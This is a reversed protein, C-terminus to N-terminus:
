DNNLDALSFSLSAFAFSLRVKINVLLPRTEPVQHIPPLQSAKLAMNDPLDFLDSTFSFLAALADSSAFRTGASITLPLPAQLASAPASASASAAGQLQVVDPLPRLYDPKLVYGCFANRAFFGLYLDRLIGPTQWNLAVLQCGASWYEFPLLNSSDIRGGHPLVRVLQEASLNFLRTLPSAGLAQPSRATAPHAFLSANSTANANTNLMKSHRRNGAKVATQSRKKRRLTKLSNAAAKKASADSTSTLM